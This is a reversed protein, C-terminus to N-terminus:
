KRGKRKLHKSLEAEARDFEATREDNYLEIPFAVAPKILVVGAGSEAMVVGGKEIGLMKRLAKPLTLSGRENIQITTVMNGEM